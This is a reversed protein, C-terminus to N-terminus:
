WQRESVTEEEDVGYFQDYAGSGMYYDYAKRVEDTVQGNEIAKQAQALTMKPKGNGSSSSGNSRQATQQSQYATRMGAIETDSYGLAKYGSFDGYAALTQARELDKAYQADARSDAYETDYRSDSVQDRGVQYNYARDDAYQGYKFSRDNNYQGLLAAYKNHDGQELAMLMELNARMNNGEDQYMSYALQRLEPIKDALEAMYNEYTQQGAVGAYSSALGGTRASVQGLTDQMARQGNRTYSEKYQQYTPDKEPDYSFAERNLIAETLDDIKGQYKNTYSPASEYTFQNAGDQLKVPNYASGDSDGSYGYKNRLNEVYSHADEWSSKGKQAAARVQAASKLEDDTFHEQDYVSGGYSSRQDKKVSNKAADVAASALTGLLDKLGAM